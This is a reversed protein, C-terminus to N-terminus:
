TVILVIVGILCSVMVNARTIIRLWVLLGKVYEMKMPVLAIAMLCSAGLSVLLVITQRLVRVRRVGLVLRVILVMVSVEKQAFKDQRLQSQYLIASPKTRRISQSGWNANYACELQILVNSM